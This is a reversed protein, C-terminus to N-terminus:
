GAAAEALAAINAPPVDPLIAEHSPSVILHPGLLDRVRRVEEKVERPTGRVLIEQTDIGGFFTIRGGFERALHEAQMRDAKAQLPHLCEVGASILPDIIDHVSGCSHLIVQYGHRHAQAAFREIWPLIFEEFHRPAFILGRQTGFDNGFFLGDILGKAEAFFRENAAEYFECVHRTAARVLDPRALLDVMYNEMGFLDTVDHFFPMWFGSARYHHGAAQLLRVGPGPDIYRVEPWEYSDVEAVTECQGLPGAEGLSRKRKWVDLLGKGEPHRYTGELYQPSLWRFDDCLKLRLEEDTRTGFYRHLIPWTDPHPNGLWFGTRDATTRAILARIRQRSTM